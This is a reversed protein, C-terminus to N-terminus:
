DLVVGLVNKKTQAERMKAALRSLIKQAPREANNRANLLANNMSTQLSGVMKRHYSFSVQAQQMNDFPIRPLAFQQHINEFYSRQGASSVDGMDVEKLCVSMRLNADRLARRAELWDRTDTSDAVGREDTSLDRNLTKLRRSTDIIQKRLSKIETESELISNWDADIRELTETATAGGETPAPAAYQMPNAQTVNVQPVNVYVFISPDTGPPPVPIPQDLLPSTGQMSDYTAGFLQWMSVFQPDIGTPQLLRRMTWQGAQWAEDPLRLVLGQPVGQPKFWVWLFSQPADAFAVQEWTQSAPRAAFEAPNM